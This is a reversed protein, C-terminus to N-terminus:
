NGPAAVNQDGDDNTDLDEQSSGTFGSVLMHTVNDSNEFGLSLTADPVAITMSSEGGLFNGDAPIALGTLDSISEIVGSGGSGDGIVIYTLGDLSQGAPGILEFYEDLDSGSQDVRIENITIGGGPSPAIVPALALIISLM